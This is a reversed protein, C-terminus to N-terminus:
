AETGGQWAPERADEPIKGASLEAWKQTMQAVTLHCAAEHGAMMVERLQPVETPCRGETLDTYRCRPHFPCGPPVKILSPPTGPIPVLRTIRDRDLRPM